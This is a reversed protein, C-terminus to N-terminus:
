NSHLLEVSQTRLTWFETPRAPEVSQTRLLERERAREERERRKWKKEDKERRKWRRRIKGWFATPRVSESSIRGVSNQPPPRPSRMFELFLYVPLRKSDGLVPNEYLDLRFLMSFHHDSVRSVLIRPAAVHLRGTVRCFRTKRILRFSFTAHSLCKRLPNEYVDLCFFM